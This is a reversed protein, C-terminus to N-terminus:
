NRNCVSEFVLVKHFFHKNLSHSKLSPFLLLGPIFTYKYTCLFCCVCFHFGTHSVLASTESFDQERRCPWEMCKQYSSLRWQLCVRCCSNWALYQVAQMDGPSFTLKGENITIWRVTCCIHKILQSITGLLIVQCLDSLALQNRWASVVNRVHSMPADSLCSISLARKSHNYPPKRFCLTWSGLGTIKSLHEM